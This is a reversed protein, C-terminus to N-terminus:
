PVDNWVKDVFDQISMTDRYPSENWLNVIKFIKKDTCSYMSYGSKEGIATVRRGPEPVFVEYSKNGLGFWVTKSM